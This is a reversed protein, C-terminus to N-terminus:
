EADAPDPPAALEKVVIFAKMERRHTRHEVVEFHGAEIWSKLLQKVRLRQGGEDMDIHLAEAVVKGAWHRAQSDERYDGLRIIAKIKELDDARIEDIVAGASPWRWPTVVGIHDSYLMALSGPGGNGLDVSEIKYWTQSGSKPTLNQKDDIVSFYRHQDVHAKEADTKSM